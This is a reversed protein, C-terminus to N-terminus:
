VNEQSIPHEQISSDGQRNAENTHLDRLIDQAMREYKNKQFRILYLDWEMKLRFLFTNMFLSLRQLQLSLWEPMLPELIYLALVVAGLYLTYTM